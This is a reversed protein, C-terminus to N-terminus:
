APDLIDILRHPARLLTQADPKGTGINMDRYIQASDVNIIECPLRQVIEVALSTKGSATPGLLCIALPKRPLTSAPIANAPVNM